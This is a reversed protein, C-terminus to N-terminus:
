KRGPMLFSTMIVRYGLKDYKKETAVAKLKSDTLIFVSSGSGSMMVAQYGDAKLKDKLEKIEPMLSISAKELDNGMNEALSTLDGSELADIVGEVNAENKENELEDFKAFVKKTSLGREPKILVVYYKKNVKIPSLVEGIGQARSPENFLCFPVDAGIEKGLAIIEERTPKLKCLSIISRIVAAANSSGGALGASMPISKHIHVRFSKKINFHEKMKRIAISALNYENTELSFNDCTVYTEYIPPLISIDISDHLELPIMIMDLQHYDGEKNLVNLALNIKAYAKVIM